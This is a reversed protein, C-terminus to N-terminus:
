KIFGAAIRTLGQVSGLKANQHAYNSGVKMNERKIKNIARKIV